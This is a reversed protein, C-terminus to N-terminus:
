KVGGRGARRTAHALARDCHKCFNGRFAFDPCTCSFEGTTTNVRVEYSLARGAHTLSYLKYTRSGDEHVAFLRVRRRHPAHLRCHLGMGDVKRDLDTLERGCRTCHSHLTTM